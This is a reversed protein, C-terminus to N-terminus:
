ETVLEWDEAFVDSSSPVWSDARGDPHVILMQNTYSIHPEARAMIIDKASQPLSQMNPIIDGTIRDPVQKVVFLGKGNWGTRRIALGFKLAQIASGFSMGTLTTISIEGKAIAMRQELIVLYYGMFKRQLSLLFAPCDEKVVKRFKESDVFAACKEYRKMLEEYEVKLRDLSTDACKYAEDLAGRWVGCGDDRVLVKDFPKFKVPEVQLTEPNYKGGYYKEAAEIFEVRQKDTAKVFCDTTCVEEEGFTHDDYYNIITNFETYYDSAWGDFIALMKSNPNYVVDGRKFFKSWCRMKSSPFLDCESGEISSIYCGDKTFTRFAREDRVYVSVPYGKHDFVGELKCKGFMPSYLKTGKPMDRLIEAVNIKNEM